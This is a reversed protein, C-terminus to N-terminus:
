HMFSAAMPFRAFIPRGSFRRARRSILGDHSTAIRTQQDGNWLLGHYYMRVVRAEHDIHLDPSAVHAYLYGGQMNKAWPPRAAKPPEPPDVPEFLSESVELVGPEYTKWPGLLDDAYALRVYSGKHDAFYLHYRGLRGAAWDPMRIVSPGNINDGMRNDMHPTILPEDTLRRLSPPMARAMSITELVSLTIADARAVAASLACAAGRPDFAAEQRAVGSFRQGAIDIELPASGGDALLKADILALALPKGLRYGFAASTTKGIIDAGCCVPENGLPQAEADDLVISVVHSGLPQEKRRRLAEKGIFDTQWAVAFDLGAELPSIDSDLEHGYALFRKEIRMATQAFLGAPRAGAAFLADYVRPADAAPCTIEWGAEGVYSLRVARVAVGAIEAPGHRFYGLSNLSDAGVRAAVEAALPGMLGIM